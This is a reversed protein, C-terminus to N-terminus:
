SSARPGACRALIRAFPGIIVLAVRVIRDVKTQESSPLWEVSASRGSQPM